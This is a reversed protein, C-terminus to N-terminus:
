HVGGGNDYDPVPWPECNHIQEDTVDPAGDSLGIIYDTQDHPNFVLYAGYAFHVRDYYEPEARAPDGSECLTYIFKFGDMFDAYSPANTVDIFFPYYEETVTNYPIFRIVPLKIANAEKDTEVPTELELNVFLATGNLLASSDDGTPSLVINVNCSDLTYPNNMPFPM